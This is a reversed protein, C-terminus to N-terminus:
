TWNNVIIATRDATLHLVANEIKINTGHAADNRKLTLKVVDSLTPDNINVFPLTAVQSLSLDVVCASAILNHLNNQAFMCTIEMNLLDFLM